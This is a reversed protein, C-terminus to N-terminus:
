TSAFAMTSKTKQYDTVLDMQVKKKNSVNDDRHKRVEDLMTMVKSLRTDSKTTYSSLEFNWIYNKKM